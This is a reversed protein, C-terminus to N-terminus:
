EGAGVALQSLRSAPTAAPLSVFSPAYPLVLFIFINDLRMVAAKRKGNKGKKRKKEERQCDVMILPALIVYVVTRSM